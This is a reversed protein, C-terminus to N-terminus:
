TRADATDSSRANALYPDLEQMVRDLTGRNREAVRAAGRVLVTRREQDDLLAGVAAALTAADSVPLTGDEESMQDVIARFNFMHPGHVIASGLQAPELLNQGGHPVLSGGVLTIPALRYFIGLEGMTDAVYVQTTRDPIQAESRRRTSLGRGSFIDAVDTGRTPHRPVVVTLLDPHRARIAADAEAIVDEEGAHTSAALWLPRGGIADLLETLQAGDAPLPEASFKVNGAAVVRGAGLEGLKEADADSQALCLDFAKLLQRAAGPVRRWGRLSSDSVRANILVVPASSAGAAALMNPWFESEVWLIVDPRWHGLFRKVWQPRDVPVYQHIVGKPLREALLRASTVTGSTMLLHLEPRDQRVREVLSLMSLSEGVSAAHIWALSGNPRPVSAVGMREPFRDPEEKGAKMRKNLYMRILPGGAATVWRYLHLIM